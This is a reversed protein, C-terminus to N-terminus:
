NPSSTIRPALAKLILRRMSALCSEEDALTWDSPRGVKFVNGTRWDLCVLVDTATSSETPMERLLGAQVGIRACLYAYAGLVERPVDELLGDRLKPGYPRSM